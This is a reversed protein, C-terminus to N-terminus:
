LQDRLANHDPPTTSEPHFCLLTWVLLWWISELVHLPNHLFTPTEDAHEFDNYVEMSHSDTDPTDPMDLTDSSDSLVLLCQDLTIPPITPPILRRCAM